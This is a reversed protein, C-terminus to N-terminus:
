WYYSLGVGMQKRHTEPQALYGQTVGNRQWAVDLSREIVFSEFYATASLRQADGFRYVPWEVSLRAGEASGTDFRVPDMIGDSWVKQHGAVSSMWDLSVVCEGRGTSKQWRLGLVEWLTRYNERLGAVKGAAHINRNRFEQELGVRGQWGSLLPLNYTASVRTNAYDTRTNIAVGNQSRGRYDLGPRAHEIAMQIAGPGLDSVRSIKLVPQNGGERLFKSGDMLYEDVTEHRYNAALMWGNVALTMPSYLVPICVLLLFTVRM